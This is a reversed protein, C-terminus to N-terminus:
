ALSRANPVSIPAAPGGGTLQDLRGLLRVVCGQAQAGACLGVCGVRLVALIAGGFRWAWVLDCGGAGSSVRLVCAVGNEGGGALERLLGTVQAGHLDGQRGHILGTHLLRPQSFCPWQPCWKRVCLLHAHM